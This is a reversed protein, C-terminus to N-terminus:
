TMTFKDIGIADPNVTTPVKIIMLTVLYNQSRTTEASQFTVLFPIQVRWSYGTGPLDGQNIIVPPATVVSNVFLQNQTVRSIIPQVAAQYADWGAATFYPRALQIQKNYNVFDFTYSAVAAKRAWTLITSSLLNPEPYANLPLRKGNQAVATFRPLPKNYVQYLLFSAVIIILAMMAVATYIFKDYHNRYFENEQNTFNFRNMGM